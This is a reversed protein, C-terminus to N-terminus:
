SIVQKNLCVVEKSAAVGAGVAAHAAITHLAALM